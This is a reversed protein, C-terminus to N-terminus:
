GWNENSAFEAGGYLHSNVTNIHILKQKWLERVSLIQLFSLTHQFNSHHQNVHQDKRCEQYYIQESSAPYNPQCRQVSAAVRKCPCICYNVQDVWCWLESTLRQLRVFNPLMCFKTAPHTCSKFFSFIVYFILSTCLTQVLRPWRRIAFTLLKSKAWFSNKYISQM